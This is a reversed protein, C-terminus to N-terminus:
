DRQNRRSLHEEWALAHQVIEGLDDYRPKWALKSMILAPSAVVSAADGARRPGITVKFAHGAVRRVTDLV